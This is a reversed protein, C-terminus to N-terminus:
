VPIAFVTQPYDWYDECHDVLALETDTLLLDEDGLAVKAGTKSLPKQVLACSTIMQTGLICNLRRISDVKVVYIDHEYCFAELLTRNMHDAASEEYDLPQAVVCFLTQEPAEALQKIASPLGVIIRKEVIARLLVLRVTEGAVAENVGRAMETSSKVIDMVM